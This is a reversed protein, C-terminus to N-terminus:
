SGMRSGGTAPSPGCSVSYSICAIDSREVRCLIADKCMRPEELVVPGNASPRDCTPIPFYPDTLMDHYFSTIATLHLCPWLFECRTDPPKRGHSPAPYDVPACKEPPPRGASRKGSAPLPTRDSLTSAFRRCFVSGIMAGRTFDPFRVITAARYTKVLPRISNSFYGPSLIGAVFDLGHWCGFLCSIWIM